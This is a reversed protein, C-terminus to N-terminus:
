FAGTALAALATHVFVRVGYGICSEDVYFEGPANEVLRREPQAMSGTSRLPPGSM